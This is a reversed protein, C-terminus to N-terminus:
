NDEHGPSPPTAPPMETPKPQEPAAPTSSEAKKQQKRADANRKKIEVMRATDLQFKNKAKQYLDKYWADDMGPVLFLLYCLLLYHSIIHM